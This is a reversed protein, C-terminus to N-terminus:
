KGDWYTNGSLTVMDKYGKKDYDVEFSPSWIYKDFTSATVTENVDLKAKSTTNYTILESNYNLTGGFACNTVESGQIKILGPYTGGATNQQTSLGFGLSYNGPTYTTARVHYVNAFFRCNSLKFTAIVYGVGASAAYDQRKQSGVQPSNVTCSEFDVYAAFGCLGGAVSCLASRSYQMEHPIVKGTSICNDVVIHDTSTGNLVGAIGGSFAKYCDDSSCTSVLDSNINGSNRCGRIVAYYCDESSPTPRSSPSYWPLKGDSTYKIIAGVIGAVGSITAHSGTTAASYSVSVDGNNVCDEITMYVEPTGALVTGIIGAYGQNVGSLSSGGPKILTLNVKGNNTCEKILCSATPTSTAVIGGVTFPRDSTSIDVSLKIDAENTCGIVSGGNMTRVFASGVVKMNANQGSNDIVTRNVCNSVLGGGNLASVFVTAGLDSPDAPVMKGALCLNEVTGDLNTILPTRADTQTVTCGTGDLIASFKKIATLTEASFDSSIVVKGEKNLWETKWADGGANCAAAFEEWDDASTIERAGPVYESATFFVMSGPNVTVGAEAGEYPRLWYNRSVHKGADTLRFCFGKPYSGAPVTVIFRKGDPTLQVGGEPLVMSVTKLGSVCTLAGNSADLTYTGAIPEEGLSTLSFSSVVDAAEADRLTICVAGCLNKLQLMTAADDNWGYLMAAGNAFSDETYEQSDPIQIQMLANDESFSTVASAPYFLNFPASINRVKFTVSTLKEGAAVSVPSSTVGNVSICDGDSWFVPLTSGSQSAELWTRSLEGGPAAVELSVLDFDAGANGGDRTCSVAAAMGLLLAARFLKKIIM